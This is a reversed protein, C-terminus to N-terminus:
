RLLSRPNFLARIRKSLPRDALGRRIGRVAAWAQVVTSDNAQFGSWLAIDVEYALALLGDVISRRTIATALDRVTMGPTIPTGHARLLDRAEWWAAVVGRTGGRRKRHATRIAKALPIAVPVAIILTLLALLIQRVPLPDGTTDEESGGPGHGPLPPDSLQQPPPLDARVQATVQALHTPAPGEGAAWRWRRGPSCTRTTCWRPAAPRPGRHATASRSGPRSASSAPWHWM